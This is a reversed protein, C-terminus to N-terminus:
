CLFLLLLCFGVIIVLLVLSNYNYYACIWSNYYTLVCMGRNAHLMNETFKCVSIDCWM